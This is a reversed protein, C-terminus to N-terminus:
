EYNLRTSPYPILEATAATKSRDKDARMGRCFHNVVAFGRSGAYTLSRCGAATMVALKALDEFCAFPLSDEDPADLAGAGPTYSRYLAAMLTERMKAAASDWEEKLQDFRRQQDRTLAAGAYVGLFTRKVWDEPFAPAYVRNDSFRWLPTASWEALQFAAAYLSLTADGNQSLRRWWTQFAALDPLFDDMGIGQVLFRTIGDLVEPQQAAAPQYDAVFRETERLDLSSRASLERVYRRSAIEPAASTNRKRTTRRAAANWSVPRNLGASASATLTMHKSGLFLIPDPPPAAM